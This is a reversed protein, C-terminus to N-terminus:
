ETVGDKTVKQVPDGVRWRDMLFYYGLNTMSVSPPWNVVPTDIPWIQTLTNVWDGPKPEINLVTPVTPKEKLRLSVIQAVFQENM